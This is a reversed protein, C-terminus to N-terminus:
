KIVKVKNVSGEALVNNYSYTIGNKVAQIDKSIGELFTQLEPIGFKQASKMWQELKDTNKSFILMLFDKVLAYLESLQPYTKLVQEYQKSSITTVSELRKDILQCLSKRHIFESHTKEHEEQELM